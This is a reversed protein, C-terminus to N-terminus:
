VWHQAKPDWKGKVVRKSLVPNLMAAAVRHGEEVPEAIGLERAMRAYAPAWDPPAAPTEDPLTHTARLAFIEDLARRLQAADLSVESAILVLDILDKVRTSHRRERGYARTYAHLKEAIHQRLPIAPVEVPEIDAFELLGPGRVLEPAGIQPNGFAIDVNIDEFPRGALECAVHYRVAAADELEDLHGTREIVFVFYDGIDTLQAKIFDATAAQEDDKRALDIDKTTRTKDGFRNDLAL